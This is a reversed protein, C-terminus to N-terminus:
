GQSETADRAYMLDARELNIISFPSTDILENTEKNHIRVQSLTLRDESFARIYDSARRSSARQGVGFHALGIVKLDGIYVVLELEQYSSEVEMLAEEPEHEVM